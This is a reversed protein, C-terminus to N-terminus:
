GCKSVSCTLCTACGEIYKINCKGPSSCGELQGVRAETGDEIYKKIVRAIVRSLSFMDSDKDKQLQEVLYNIPVGHRLSLSVTRTFATFNPNDFVNVIDKVVLKDEGDAIELDYSAHRSKFSRKVLLGNTYKKPLEVSESLGGFIEYPRGDLLGVLIIWKQDKITTQHIECSLERPRKRANTNVENKKAGASKADETQVLVGSRSGDRYITFGKCGTKWARMYVDSVLEQTASNPLNCTKSISHCLHKQAAAQLDVSAAWDIDNSTAGWYPSDKPDSKGTIDIWRKFNHHYVTHNHWRDGLDDIFDISLNQQNSASDSIKQRRVYSLMFAPEIGSTTQTLISVSGTPATTTLAINRRGHKRYREQYEPSLSAIMDSIFAHGEEKALDWVPFAGREQAMDISSRYASQAMTQYLKDVFAISEPSGYRMNMAAITDGVATPGLGTRRGSVVAHKISQWLEIEVQKVDLEEPDKRIKEIISEIKEIELDVLDDMLRQAAYASTSFLDWDFVPKESFPKHVFLFTNLCLLRCADNKSIPIEGCPNTSLTKFGASVYVDAPSRDIITDWFLIGPEASQWASNMMMNWIRKADAQRRMKYASNKLGADVPFRQEYEEGAEVARMFEDSVRISINAGTVKTKDNKIKIFTEIDPHHVSISLMLAGRRGNQAVERTTNSFREMFIGIGDSTGAANSVHLGAPRIKSIDHGVGGRRKMLQAQQQDTLLIGGYSDEAGDIVFCNSISVQRFKNGIGSMPSGQPVIKGFVKRDYLADRQSLYSLIEEKNLAIGPYKSEIRVFESALREFMDDPTAELLEGAGDQLAYKGVFVNAAMEDGGFWTTSASIAEERTYNKVSM